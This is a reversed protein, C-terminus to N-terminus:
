SLKQAKIVKAGKYSKRRGLKQAKRVKVELKRRETKRRKLNVVMENHKM